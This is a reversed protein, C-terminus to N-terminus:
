LVLQCEIVTKGWKKYPYATLFLKSGSPFILEMEGRNLSEVYKGVEDIYTAMAGKPCFIKLVYQCVSFNSSSDDEERTLITTTLSTSMPALEVFPARLTNLKKFDWFCINNLARYVVINEPIRPASAVINDIEFKLSDFYDNGKGRARFYKNANDYAYGCYFSLPDRKKWFDAYAGSREVDKIFSTYSKAWEGYVQEGWQKALKDDFGFDLYSGRVIDKPVIRGYKLSALLM